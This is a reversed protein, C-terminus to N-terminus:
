RTNSPGRRRHGSSRRSQGSGKGMKATPVGENDPAEIPEAAGGMLEDVQQLLELALANAESRKLIADVGSRHHPFAM